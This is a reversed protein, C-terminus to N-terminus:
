QHHCRLLSLTRVLALRSGRRCCHCHASRWRFGLNCTSGVVVVLCRPARRQCLGSSSSSGAAAPAQWRLSNTGAGVVAATAAAAVTPVASVGGICGCHRSRCQCCCHHRPPPLAAIVIRGRRRPSWSAVVVVAVHLCHCPLTSLLATDVIRCCHVVIPCGRCRRHCSSESPLPQSAAAPIRM